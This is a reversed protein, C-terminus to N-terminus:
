AKGAAHRSVLIVSAIHRDTEPLEVTGTVQLGAAALETTLSRRDILDLAIRDHAETLAGAPDVTQRLRVVTLAGPDSEVAVPRSAYVWDDIERVDPLLDVAQSEPAIIESIAFAAIGGPALHGKVGELLRKRMSKGGVIHLLQQPAIIADFDSPGLDVSALETVDGTVASVGPESALRNLDDVMDPDRDVGVVTREDEALHRAVRGIGCGLDLLSHRGSTIETWDPLDANYACSEVLQWISAECSARDALIM